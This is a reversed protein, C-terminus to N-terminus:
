SCWVLWVVLGEDLLEANVVVNVVQAFHHFSGRKILLFILFMFRIPKYGDPLSKTHPSIHIHLKAILILHRHPAPLNIIPLNRQILHILSQQQLLLAVLQKRKIARLGDELLGVYYVAVL